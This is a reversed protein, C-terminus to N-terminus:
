DNKEMQDFNHLILIMENYIHGKAVMEPLESM